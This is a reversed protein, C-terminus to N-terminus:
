HWLSLQAAMSRPSFRNLVTATVHALAPSMGESLTPVFSLLEGPLSASTGELQDKLDRAFVEALKPPVANGILLARDAPSGWLVFTDPFTQIRCCERLTLFRNETPHVFESSAM